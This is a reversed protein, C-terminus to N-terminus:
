TIRHRLHPTTPAPRLCRTMPRLHLGRPVWAFLVQTNVLAACVTMNAIQFRLVICHKRQADAATIVTNVPIRTHLTLVGRSFREFPDLAFWSRNCAPSSDRPSTDYTMSAWTRSHIPNSFGASLAKTSRKQSGANHYTPSTLMPVTMDEARTTTTIRTSNQRLAPLIATQM